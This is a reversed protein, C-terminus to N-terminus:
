PLKGSTGFSQSKGGPTVIGSAKPLPLGSKSKPWNGDATKHAPAKDM